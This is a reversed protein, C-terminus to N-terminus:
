LTPNQLERTATQTRSTSVNLDAPQKSHHDMYVHSVVRAACVGEIHIQSPEVCVLKPSIQSKDGIIKGYVVIKTKPKLIVGVLWGRM